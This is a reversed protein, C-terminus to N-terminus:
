KEPASIAKLEADSLEKRRKLSWNGVWKKMTDLRASREAPNSGLYNYMNGPKGDKTNKGDDLRRMLAGADSGNVMVMVSKYDALSPGKFKKTWAEKNNQFESMSPAGSIHCAACREAFIKKVTNEYTVSQAAAPASLAGIAGATTLLLLTKKV